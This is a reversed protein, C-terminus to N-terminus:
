GSHIICFCFSVFTVKKITPCIKKHNSLDCLKGQWKCGEHRCRVCLLNVQRQFHKNLVTSLPHTNCLPCAGGERQIRSASEQSIHYGCCLTLHPELLLSSKQTVPCFFSESPQEVFQYDKESLEIGQSFHPIIARVITWVLFLKSKIPCDQLQLYLVPEKVAPQHLLLHCSVWIWPNALLLHLEIYYVTYSDLTKFPCTVYGMNNQTSNSSSSENSSDTTPPM